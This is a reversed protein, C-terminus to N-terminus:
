QLKSAHFPEKTQLDLSAYVEKIKRVEKRANLLDIVDKAPLKALYAAAGLDRVAKTEKTEEVQLKITVHSAGITIDSINAHYSYVPDKRWVDTIMGPLHKLCTGEDPAAYMHM